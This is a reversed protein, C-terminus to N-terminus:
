YAPTLTVRRFEIPGHDGQLLIPGPEGEDSDLAGGTIGPIAQRDIVREGNLIVTVSRGVLTVDLTQWQGAEKGANVSPTLFGYIGGIKHSDAEERENDEIQVEYRGRLYVGSNSGPPYRFEASLKFDVAKRETLLDNGPDANVLTGDRVVWGNKTRPDRQKWGALDRGNFLEVPAGWRTAHTRALSPAPRAQWRVRRDQEDTTEGTMVGGELRGDFQQDDTRREWQPPVAFRIRGKEFAVRSLPRASGVRGVFSGVLTRYGSQRVELWSPYTGEPGYVTLDWRGVVPPPEHRTFPDDDGALVASICALLLALGSAARGHKTSTMTDDEFAISGGAQSWPV